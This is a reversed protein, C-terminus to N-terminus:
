NGPVIANDKMLQKVVADALSASATPIDRVDSSETQASWVLEGGPLRFINTELFINVSGAVYGPSYIYNSMQAYYDYFPSTNTPYYYYKGPVYRRTDNVGMLSVTLVADFNGSKLFELFIEESINDKSANPPLFELAAIANFGKDILRGEIDAEVIKRREPLKAIGVVALKKVPVPNDPDAKWSGTIRTSTGCATLIVLLLVVTGKITSFPKKM